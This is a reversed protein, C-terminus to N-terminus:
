GVRQGFVGHGIADFAGGGLGYSRRGAFSKRVCVRGAGAERQGARRRGRRRSRPSAPTLHRFKLNLPGIMTSPTFTPAVASSVVALARALRSNKSFAGAVRQFAM